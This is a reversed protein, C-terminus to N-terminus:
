ISRGAHWVGESLGRCAQMMARAAVHPNSGVLFIYMKYKGWLFNSILEDQQYRLDLGQM